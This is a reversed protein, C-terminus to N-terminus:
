GMRREVSLDHVDHRAYARTIGERRRRRAALWARFNRLELYALRSVGIAIVIDYALSATM